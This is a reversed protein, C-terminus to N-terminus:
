SDESDDSLDSLSPIEFFKLLEMKSTITDNRNPTRLLDKDEEDDDVEDDGDFFLEFESKEKSEESKLTVLSTQTGSSTARNQDTERKQFNFENFQIESDEPRFRINRTKKLQKTSKPGDDTSEETVHLNYFNKQSHLVKPFDTSDESSLHRNKITNEM